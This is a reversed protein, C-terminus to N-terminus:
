GAKSKILATEFKLRLIEDPVNKAAPVYIKLLELAKAMKAEGKPPPVDGVEVGRPDNWHAAWWEVWDVVQPIVTQILGELHLQQVIKQKLLWSIVFPSIAAVIGALGVLIITIVITWDM